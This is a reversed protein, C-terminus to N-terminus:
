TTHQEAASWIAAGLVIWGLGLLVIPLELLREDIAELAGGAILLPIVALGMAWPLSTYPMALARARRAALGLALLAAFAGFGGVLPRSLLRTSDALQTLRLEHGRYVCSCTDPQLAAIM